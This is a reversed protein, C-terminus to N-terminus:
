SLLLGYEQENIKLARELLDRQAVHLFPDLPDRDTENKLVRQWRLIGYLDM